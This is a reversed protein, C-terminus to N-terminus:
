YINGTPDFDAVYGADTGLHHGGAQSYVFKGWSNAFDTRNKSDAGYREEEVKMLKLTPILAIQNHKMKAITIQDLERANPVTHLLVDVGGNIATQLGASNISSWSCTKKKHAENVIAKVTEFANGGSRYNAAIYIKIADASKSVQQRTQQTRRLSGIEYLGDPM